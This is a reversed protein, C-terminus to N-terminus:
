KFFFGIILFIYGVIFFGFFFLGEYKRWLKQILWLKEQPFQKTYKVQLLEYKKGAENNNEIKKIEQVEEICKQLKKLNEDIMPSFNVLDNMTSLVLHCLGYLVVVSFCILSVIFYANDKFIDNAIMIPFVVGIVAVSLGITFQRLGKYDDIIATTQNVANRVVWFLQEKLTKELENIRKQNAENIPM